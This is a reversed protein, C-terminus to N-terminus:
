ANSDEHVLAMFFTVGWPACIKRFAHSTNNHKIISIRHFLDLTLTPLSIFFGVSNRKRLLPAAPKSDGIYDNINTMAFFIPRKDNSKASVMQWIQVVTVESNM